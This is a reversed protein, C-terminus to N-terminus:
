KVPQSWGSPSLLSNQGAETCMMPSRARRRRSGRGTERRARAPLSMMQNWQTMQGQMSQDAPSGRGRQTNPWPKTVAASPCFILHAGASSTHSCGSM